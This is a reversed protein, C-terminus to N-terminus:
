MMMSSACRMLFSFLRRACSTLAMSEWYRRSSVPVGRCFLRCSSQASSLKRMGSTKEEESSKSPQNAFPPAPPPSVLSVMRLSCATIFGKRSRRRLASTSVLRSGLISILSCTGMVSMCRVQYWHTLPESPATSLLIERQSGPFSCDFWLAIGHVPIIASMQFMFPFDFRQLEAIAMTNFDFPKSVAPAALTHPPVHGVVPQSFYFAKAEDRLPNMDLGYFNTQSWFGCKNLQETYLAEDSFPAAYMTARDPFMLGGPKLLKDRAHLFSELMRENVLAIGLPESILIDVREELEVEEVRQNIVQVIHSLGNGAALKAAHKAMGSAEVAFVRAAGAHAAFFSLIGTGCGVDLVTRGIFDARNELVAFQYLSTRVHDELMGQQQVVTSYDNFYVKDKDPLLEPIVGDMAPLVGAESSGGTRAEEMMHADAM